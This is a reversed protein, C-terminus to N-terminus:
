HVIADQWENREFFRNNDRMGKELMLLLWNGSDSRLM